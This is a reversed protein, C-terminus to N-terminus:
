RRAGPDSESPPLLFQIWMALSDYYSPPFSHGLGPYTHRVVHGGAGEFWRADADALARGREGELAGSIVLYTGSSLDPPEAIQTLQMGSRGGPCLAVAGAFLEPDRAALELALQGGQSFGAALVAGLQPRVHEAVAELAGYVHARDRAIDESWAYRESTHFM